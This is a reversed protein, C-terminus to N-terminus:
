KMIRMTSSQISLIELVNMLIIKSDINSFFSPVVNVLRGFGGYMTHVNPIYIRQYIGFEKCVM